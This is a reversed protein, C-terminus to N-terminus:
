TQQVELGLSSLVEAIRARSDAAVPVLPLRLDARALGLLALAAKCPAPNPEVFMARHLPLLEFHARRAATVDGAAMRAVVEVVRRPVVNSTVSIVGRAGAAMMAVTLADDGCMVALREGLRESLEQCRLVNGTADKLAVINPARQCLWLTSELSLDVGSRGPINYIVIPADVAEAVRAFHQRLGEQNPKNYYPTVIMVADAGARHAAQAAAITRATSNSGAGALVRARGQARRAVREIVQQQEEASLTPTEGTTGCPVLGDVGAELQRDVLRDLAETDVSRGGAAFPTVLATYTGAIPPESM